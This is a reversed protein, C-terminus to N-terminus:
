ELIGIMVPATFCIHPYSSLLQLASSLERTVQVRPPSRRATLSSKHPFEKTKNM